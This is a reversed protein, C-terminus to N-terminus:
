RATSSLTDPLTGTNTVSNPVCSAVPSPGFSKVMDCFYMSRIFRLFIEQVFQFKESSSRDPATNLSPVQEPVDNLPVLLSLGAPTQTRSMTRDASWHHDVTSRM